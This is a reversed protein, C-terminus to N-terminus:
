DRFVETSIIEKFPVLSTILLPLLWVQYSLSEQYVKRGDMDKAILDSM